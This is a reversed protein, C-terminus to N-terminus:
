SCGTQTSRTPTRVVIANIGTPAECTHLMEDMRTTVLPKQPSCLVHSIADMRRPYNLAFIGVAQKGMASQYCNRPAQNHDCFPILSACLGNILSPHLEFHTCESSTDTINMGVHLDMEELKDVYEIIGKSLLYEWMYEYSPADAIAERLDCLRSAVILPRLLCGPDTDICIAKDVMSLSTDFPILNKRRLERMRHLLLKGDSISQTYMYLCGNILIPIGSARNEDNCELLPILIPTDIRRLQEKIAGSYTGIRVHAMMALNKILGCSTGEPTEVPCVIGWSTYHLQRPKPAKGERNIPTNIRRLNSLAAVATMRSMMQAVGTQNSNGRQIGWNGTSFAYKFAGTIKKHNLHESLNTYNLRKLELLRHYNSSMTKLLTRYVQRFLLSMLMGATDIRKNAYHDRDDCQIQGTHAAILKRIMFGLFNAKARNVDPTALLGMHPLLENTLIHDLYKLRRERTPEKTGEKGLWELLEDYTMDSTTDNDLIGCLLRSEEADLNGMILQMTEKRTAVGLLKFIALVPVHMDIFPLNVVMEPIAGKKTSTIYVYLTSTSRMKLEHCSRIECVLQYKSPQKVHFIYAQNTHLKEQALLAKEIGNIIFYGGQDLRCENTREAKYTHCYMSGVMVPLRCLLVERFVRRETLVDDVFIDHAIDVM